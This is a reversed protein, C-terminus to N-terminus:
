RWEMPRELVKILADETPNAQFSEDFARFRFSMTLGRQAGFTAVAHDLASELEPLNAGNSYFDSRALVRLDVIAAESWKESIGRKGPLLRDHTRQALLLMLGYVLVQFAASPPDNSAIKLEILVVHGKKPFHAFDLGGTEQAYKAAMGSATPIENAWKDSGTEKLKRALKRNLMVEESTNQDALNPCLEWRWNSKGRWQCRGDVWNATIMRWITEVTAVLNPPNTWAAEATTAARLTPEILESVGACLAPGQPIRKTNM